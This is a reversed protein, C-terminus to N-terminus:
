WRASSCKRSTVWITPLTKASMYRQERNKALAREIIEDLEAPYDHIFKSLPPAPERLIKNIIAAAGTAEFPLVYTLLEYLMVGTSFVDSRADVPQGNFQEPPMYALTGIVQGPRTMAKGAAHAVGFDLLKVNGNALLIVNAPKVDRHIIHHQHACHLANCVQIIIDLKQVLTLDRRSAIITGLAEGDVYEMVLYPLGNEEGLDYVTVINPHNLASATKAEQIFRRRRDPDKVREPPLVKLAIIRDLHSDRARYVEGMGGEGLKELVEYRSVIQGTV